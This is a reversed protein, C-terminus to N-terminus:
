NRYLKDALRVKSLVVLHGM